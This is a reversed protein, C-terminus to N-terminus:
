LGSTARKGFLEKKKKKILLKPNVVEYDTKDYQYISWKGFSYELSTLSEVWDGSNLYTVTRGQETQVPRIQHRHIHGCIVGDYGKEIALQIATDEFDSIIKVAEKVQSKIKKAFSFSSLGFKSRWVNILRNLIILLDYGKGGLKAIWPAYKISADFVDGHFFWYKKGDLQLVLKDRLSFMGTSFDSYRRLVDDHNGTLYFVKTGHTALKAVHQIVQMHELPFYSKRYQWIDIFDGNIILTGPKISRLYDVLEKAHCGYTGLHVDSIVVLDLERKM